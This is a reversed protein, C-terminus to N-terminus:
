DTFDQVWYTQYYGIGMRTYKANLINQRHPGSAMWMNVVELGLLPGFAINEGGFDFIVGASLLRDRFGDGNLNVHSFYSNVVMDVAHAQAVTSHLFDLKLPPLGNADREANTFYCAAEIKNKTNADVIIPVYCPDNPDGPNNNLVGGPLNDSPTTTDISATALKGQAAQFGENSCGSLTIFWLPIILIM